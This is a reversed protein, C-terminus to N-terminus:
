QNWRHYVFCRPVKKELIDQHFGKPIVIGGNVTRVKIADALQEESDTYYKVNIGPHTDLQQVIKRSLSSNDHDVVGFPINLIFVKSYVFALFM